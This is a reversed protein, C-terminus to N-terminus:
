DYAQCFPDSGSINFLLVTYNLFINVKMYSNM